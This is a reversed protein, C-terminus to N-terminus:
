FLTEYALNYWKVIIVVRFLGLKSSLSSHIKKLRQFFANKRIKIM